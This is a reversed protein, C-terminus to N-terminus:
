RGNEGDDEQDGALGVEVPDVRKGNVWEFNWLAGNLSFLYHQM